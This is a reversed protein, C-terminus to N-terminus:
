ARQQPCDHKAISCHKTATTNLVEDRMKAWNLQMRIVYPSRERSGLVLWSKEKFPDEAIVRHGTAKMANIIDEAIQGRGINQFAGALRGAILTHGGDLLKRLLEPPDVLSLATRMEAPYSKFCLSPCAILAASLSYVRLGDKTETDEVLPMKETRIEFISTGYLLETARNNGKPSRVTLQKPVNWNGVHLNISHEPSLCWEGGFRKNFYIICFNWFSNFWSTSEGAPEVPACSFYWGKMVEKIFGHQILRERHTRSIDKTQFAVQERDQLAKLITLSEALRSHIKAM